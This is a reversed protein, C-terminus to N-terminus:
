HWSCSPYTRLTWGVQWTILWLILMGLRQMDPCLLNAKVLRCIVPHTGVQYNGSRNLYTSVASRALNVTNHGRNQVTRGLFKSRRHSTNKIKNKNVFHEWCRIYSDYSKASNPRWSKILLDTADKNLGSQRFSKRLDQQSSSALAEERDPSSSGRAQQALSTCPLKVPPAQLLRQVVPHWPQTPWDPFVLIGASQELQRKQIVQALISFPSFTYFLEERWSISFADVAVAAPDPRYSM